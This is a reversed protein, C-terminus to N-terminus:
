CLRWMAKMQVSVVGLIHHINQGKCKGSVFLGDPRVAIAAFTCDGQWLKPMLTINVKKHRPFVMMVGDGQHDAM